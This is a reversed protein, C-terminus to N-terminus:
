NTAKYQARGFRRGHSTNYFNIANGTSTGTVWALQEPGIIGVINAGGTVQKVEKETLERM